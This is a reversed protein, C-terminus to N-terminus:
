RGSGLMEALGTLDPSTPSLPVTMLHRRALVLSGQQESLLISSTDSLRLVVSPAEFPDDCPCGM